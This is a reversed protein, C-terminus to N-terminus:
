ASLAPGAPTSGAPAPTGGVYTTVLRFRTPGDPANELRFCILDAPQDVAIEPQPKGLLRAPNTTVTALLEGVPLGTAELLTNLGAELDQNSGALYPTGAVVIKGSPDVAWAGYTGPPLGALPSADSVLITRALTKARVLVRLTAHDVHHGDAIFSASLSDIAAQEWIPNPHRPLSAAIGNGLHTSLSAGADAAARLTAGDAATHGIAVAVGSDVVKRIFPIAKPQEPALTLLAVRGGSAEQFRQFEEWEPARVADFPHAGRFGDVASIYPGELHIGAVRRAVERDQECASAIARLGAVFAECSATILTPCQRATGLADQSRVLDAAQEPTLSPDSYSLGWRGNLQIDWFAPAVWEEGRGDNPPDVAEVSRIRGGELGVEVWAGTRYHRARISTM